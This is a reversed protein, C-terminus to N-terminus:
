RSELGLLRVVLAWLAPTITVVVGSTLLGLVEHGERQVHSLRHQGTLRPVCLFGHQSLAQNVLALATQDPLPPLPLPFLV